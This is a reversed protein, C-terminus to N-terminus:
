GAALVPNGRRSGRRAKLAQWAKHHYPHVVTNVVSEIVAALGGAVVSGTMVYTVSFAVALHLCVASTTEAAKIM